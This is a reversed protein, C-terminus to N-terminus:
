EVLQSKFIQLPLDQEQVRGSGPSPWVGPGLFLSLIMSSPLTVVIEEDLLIGTSLLHDACLSPEAWILM